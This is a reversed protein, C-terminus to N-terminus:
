SAWEGPLFCAVILAICLCQHNDLGPSRGDATGHELFHPGDHPDTFVNGDERWQQSQGPSEAYGRDEIVARQRAVDNEGQEVGELYTRPRRVSDM